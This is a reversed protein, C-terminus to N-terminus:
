SFKPFFISTDRRSKNEKFGAELIGLVCNL